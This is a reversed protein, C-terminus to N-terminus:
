IIFASPLPCTLMLLLLALSVCGAQDGSPAFDGKGAIAIVTARVTDIHHVAIARILSPQGEAGRGEGVFLGRPRRISALNRKGARTVTRNLDPLFCIIVSVDQGSSTDIDVFFDVHHVRVATILHPERVM